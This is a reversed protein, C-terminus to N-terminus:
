RNTHMTDQRVEYLEPVTLERLMPNASLKAAAPPWPEGTVNLLDQM